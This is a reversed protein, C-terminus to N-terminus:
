SSSASLASASFRLLCDTCSLYRSAIRGPPLHNNLSSYSPILPTPVVPYSQGVGPPMTVSNDPCLTNIPNNHSALILSVLCLMALTVCFVRFLYITESHLFYMQSAYINPLHTCSLRYGSTLLSAGM